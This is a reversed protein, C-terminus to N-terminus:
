SKVKEFCIVNINAFINEVYNNYDHERESIIHSFYPCPCDFTFSFNLSIKFDARLLHSFFSM